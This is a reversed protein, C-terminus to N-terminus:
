TFLLLSVKSHGAVSVNLEQVLTTGLDSVQLVTIVIDGFQLVDGRSHHMQTFSDNSQFM